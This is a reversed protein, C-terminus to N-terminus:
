EDILKYIVICAGTFIAWGILIEVSIMEQYFLLSAVFTTLVGSYVFCVANSNQKFKMISWTIVFISGLIIVSAYLYNTAINSAVAMDYFSNGVDFVSENYYSM